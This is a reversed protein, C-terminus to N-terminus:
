TLIFNLIYILNNFTIIEATLILYRFHKNVFDFEKHMHSWLLSMCYIWLCMIEKQKGWTTLSGLTFVTAWKFIVKIQKGIYIKRWKANRFRPILM